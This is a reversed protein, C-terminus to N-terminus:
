YYTLFTLAFEIKENAIFSIIEQKLIYIKIEQRNTNAHKCYAM